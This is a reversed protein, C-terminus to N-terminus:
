PNSGLEPWTHCLGLEAQPHDPRKEQSDGKKVGGLSQSPQFRTFYDQRATFGIFFFVCIRAEGM